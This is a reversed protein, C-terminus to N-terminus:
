CCAMTGGVDVCLVEELEELETIDIKKIDEM